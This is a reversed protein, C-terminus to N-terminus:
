SSSVYMTNRLSLSEQIYKSLNILVNRNNTSLLDTFKFMSPKVFYYKKIYQIRINQFFPCVCVFHYEDELDFKNCSLCYRQERPTNNRAYRGTQIRLPHVSLRLRCFYFRYKCPLIDLYSEYGFNLKFCKYNYLVPSSELTAAWEQIFTDIVRRKFVYPFVNQNISNENFVDPFGYNCLIKKVNSVWNNYGRNCDHLGETYM